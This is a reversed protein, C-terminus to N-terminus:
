TKIGAALLLLLTFGNFTGHALTSSWLSGTRAYVSALVVGAAALPLIGAPEGHAAGFILGSALAALKFPLHQRLANFIFGRFLLEEAFPALVVAVFIMLDLLLGPKAGEFLRVALQDPPHRLVIGQLLGAVIVALWMMGGGILGAAAERRGFPGFIAGFSRHAVKPLVLALYAVVPIYSLIQVAVLPYTLQPEKVSQATVHLARLLVALTAVYVVILGAAVALSPGPAFASAASSTPSGPSPPSTLNNQM